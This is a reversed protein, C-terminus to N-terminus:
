HQWVRVYAVRMTASDVVNSTRKGSVTNILVIYMPSSTIGEPISAIETGDYYYTVFGPEWDAAFTHWGAKINRDCAGPGGSRDHFHLCATGGLAEMIDNEGDKPWVQGSTFIGPWDAIKDGDAPLYLKAEVVGYTFTFGGSARGDAPDTSLIAGTYPETVGNCTSSQHTATLNVTGDGPFSVHDSSYCAQESRNVPSTVGTGFWGPRWISTDLSPGDFESNLILHWSGPIGVPDPTTASTAPTTPTPKITSPRTSTPEPKPSLTGLPGGSVRTKACPVHWTFAYWCPDGQAKALPRAPVQADTSLAIAATMVGSVALAIVAILLRRRM